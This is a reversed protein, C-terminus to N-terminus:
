ICMGVTNIAVPGCGIKTCASITVNYKTGFHYQFHKSYMYTTGRSLNASVNTSDQEGNRLLRINFSSPIGNWSDSLPAKWQLILEDDEVKLSVDRPPSSPTGEDAEITIITSNITFHSNSTIFVPGILCYNVYRPLIIHGQGATINHCEMSKIPSTCDYKIIDQKRSCIHLLVLKRSLLCIAISNLEYTVTVDTSNKTVLPKQAFM